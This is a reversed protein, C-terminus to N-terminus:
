KSSYVAVASMRFPSAFQLLEQSTMKKYGEEPDIYYFLKPEDVSGAYGTLLITHEGEVVEIIKGERTKWKLINGQGKYIWIIVPHNNEIHKALQSLSANQMLDTKKWNQIWKSTPAAHIGYSELNNKGLVNGVFGKDPDGWIDGSRQTPDLPMFKLIDRESLLDGFYNLAMKITAAECTFPNEQKFYSVNLKKQYVFVNISFFLSMIYNIINNM